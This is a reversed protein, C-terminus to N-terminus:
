YGSQVMHNVVSEVAYNADVPKVGDGYHGIVIGQKTKVIVIGEKDKRGYFRGDAKSVDFREGAVYIGEACAKDTAEGGRLAAAIKQLEAQQIAFGPTIAWIAEGSANTIAAKDLHGSGVLSTDVYSQFASM